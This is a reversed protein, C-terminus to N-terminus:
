LVKEFGGLMNPHGYPGKSASVVHLNAIFELPHRPLRTDLWRGKYHLGNAREIRM